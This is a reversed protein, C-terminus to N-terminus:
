PKHFYIIIIIIFTLSSVLVQTYSYANTPGGLKSPAMCILLPTGNLMVMGEKTCWLVRFLHTYRMEDEGPKSRKENPASM